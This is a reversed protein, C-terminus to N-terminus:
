KNLENIKQSISHFKEKSKKILGEDSKEEADHIERKAEMQKQRLNELELNRLLEKFEKQLFDSDGGEFEFSSRMELIHIRQDAPNQLLGQYLPPLLSENEKVIGLFEAKAFALVLLREAILDYRTPGSLKSVGENQVGFATEREEPLNHLETLLVTESFGSYRALEKLLLSQEVSSKIKKIKSLLHRLVRKRSPIDTLDVSSFYKGFLYHFAPIAERAAKTLYEPNKYAAEAPDKFEGLDIVKTHFDFGSFIDLARELAKLGAEDNDFSLIVTDALRRLKELHFGSLATGSVAVANKVGAQHAMLFDMQGEVLFVSKSGAIENKSKHFGYLVKSKNFIPTEPSNLYKPRDGSATELHPMLRGTFAITKGVSNLIPFIIREAFRDQYLGRVNKNALGARSVDSVDFGLKLLHLTLKEGGPAFGLEFEEITAPQLGRQKLYEGANQNQELAQQYFKKAQEHLDYLVGFEKQQQPNLTRISIGAKEALFRLAEPFELNEYRMVFKIVDGGEGCGFCHWIQREPSVIFSPTKEQHFPCLAKFNKGAPLLNLYSRLFEVLDLKQKILEVETAM